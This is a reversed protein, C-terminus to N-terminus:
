YKYTRARLGNLKFLLLRSYFLESFNYVVCIHLLIYPKGYSTKFDDQFFIASNWFELNM